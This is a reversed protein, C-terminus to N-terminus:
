KCEKAINKCVDKQQITFIDKYNSRERERERCYCPM